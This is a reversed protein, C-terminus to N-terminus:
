SLLLHKRKQDFEDKEGNIRIMTYQPVEKIGTWDTEAGSKNKKKRWERSTTSARGCPM